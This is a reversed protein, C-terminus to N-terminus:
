LVTFALTALAKLTPKCIDIRIRKQTDVSVNATSSIDIGIGTSHYM